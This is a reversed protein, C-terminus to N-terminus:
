VASSVLFGKVKSDKLRDYFFIASATCGNTRFLMLSFLGM